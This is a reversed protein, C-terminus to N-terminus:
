ARYDTRSRDRDRKRDRRSWRRKYQAFGSVKKTISTPRFESGPIRNM